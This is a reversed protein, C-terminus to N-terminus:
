PVVRRGLKGFLADFGAKMVYSWRKKLSSQRLLCPAALNRIMHKIWFLTYQYWPLWQKAMWLWNRNLYYYRWLLNEPIEPLAGRFPWCKRQPVLAQAFHQIHSTPILYVKKKLSIRLIFEVDDYWLYFESKPFGFEEFAERRILLGCYGGTNVALANQSVLANESLGTFSFNKSNFIAPRNPASWMNKSDLITSELIYTEKEKAQPSVLLAELATPQAIADDDMVWIWDPKLELAKEFLFFMGQSAGSNELNSFIKISPNNQSIQALYEATADSCGNNLILFYHPRITQNLVSEVAQKLFDLRNFTPLITVVFPTQKM